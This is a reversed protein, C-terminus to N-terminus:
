IDFELIFKTGHDREIKVVGDIQEMLMRVLQFGFGGPNEIDMSDPIGIGNDAIIFKVHNGKKKALVTIIGDNRNPFAYKMSNTIIENIIIGLPFLNEMPIMFNDIATKTKVTINASFIRVIEHVLPTVYHQAPMERQNESRYLKDYLISMSKLRNVADELAAAVSSNEQSNAQMLLLGMIAAMNNKIRHHVERLLLEKEALLSKIKDGALKSSTIDSIVVPCMPLGYVDQEVTAEMRAFFQTGDKRVIRLECTQSKGTKLLLKHFRSHIDRDEPLIFHTLLRKLFRKKTIGLMTSATLNAELILGKKNITLYGVPALDYLDFYRARSAELLMQTRRLEENKMELEIQHARLDEKVRNLNSESQELLAIRQKLLGLEQILELNTRSIDKM